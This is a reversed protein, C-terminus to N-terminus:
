PHGQLLIRQIHGDRCMFRLHKQGREVSARVEQMIYTHQLIAAPLNKLTSKVVPSKINSSLGNKVPFYKFHQRPWVKVWQNHIMLCLGLLSCSEKGVYLAAFVHYSLGRSKAASMPSRTYSVPWMVAACVMMQSRNWIGTAWHMGCLPWAISLM